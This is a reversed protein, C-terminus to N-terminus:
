DIFSLKLPLENKVATLDKNCNENKKEQQIDRTQNPM